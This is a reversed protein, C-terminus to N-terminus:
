VAVKERLTLYNYLVDLEILAAAWNTGPCM